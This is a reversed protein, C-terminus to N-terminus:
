SGTVVQQSKKSVSSGTTTSGIAHAQADGLRSRIEGLPHKYM